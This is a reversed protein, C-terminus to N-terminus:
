SGTAPAPRVMELHPIGDEDYNDGDRAFGFGAYFQELYAQAGIRVPVAGCLATLRRLGEAVVARGLGDRRAEPATVIRGLSAEAYKAGPPHIRLYAAIAGARETWLHWAPADLGDLDLYPCNQEVVFVRSRVALIRYLEDRDLETWHKCIWDATV